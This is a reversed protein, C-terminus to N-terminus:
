LLTQKIVGVYKNTRPRRYVTGGEEQTYYPSKWDPSLPSIFFIKYCKKRITTSSLHATCDFWIMQIIRAANCRM